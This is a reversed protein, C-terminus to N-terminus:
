VTVNRCVSLTIIMINKQSPHKVNVVILYNYFM